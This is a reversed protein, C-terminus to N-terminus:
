FDNFNHEFRNVGYIEKRLIEMQKMETYDHVRIISACNSAILHAALSGYLREEAPLINGSAINGTNISTNNGLNEGLAIGIFSKRSAAYLLPKKLTKFAGLYKTLILNDKYRKGFGIGPDLIIKNEDIQNEICFQIRNKFFQYIEDILNEYSPNKQMEKPTGKMHMLVVPKGSEKVVKVMDKDMTLASIDNIIDAGMEVALAAVKSKYTDISIPIDTIKRIIEIAPIVRNIEEELSVPDSGPRTSEGGIDIIDVKAEIMDKVVNELSKIDVRSGIYFSDPTINIVAMIKVKDKPTLLTKGIKIQSFDDTEIIYKLDQGLQKLKFPQKMLKEALRLIQVISGALLIDTKLPILTYTKYSIAADMGISLAEQKLINAARHDISKIYFRKYTFKSAMYDIVEKSVEINYLEDRINYFNYDSLDYIDHYIM